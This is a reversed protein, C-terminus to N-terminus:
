QKLQPDSLVRGATLGRKVLLTAGVAIWFLIRVKRVLGITTGVVTGLGLIGTLFATGAENVGMGLPVFKFVVIILRNVTEVIFAVLLSPPAGLLLWLTLYAELVGVM